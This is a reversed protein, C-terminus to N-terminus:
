RVTPLDEPLPVDTISLDDIISHVQARVFAEHRLRGAFSDRDMTSFLSMAQPYEHTM